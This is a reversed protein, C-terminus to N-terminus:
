FLEATFGASQKIKYEDNVMCYQFSFDREFSEPPALFLCTALGDAVAASQAQVWTAIVGETPKSTRPDIVHHNNGWARRNIASGCVAGKDLTLVGIVKSPDGPHELGVNIPHGKGYYAIDGSGNVLFRTLSRQELLSKLIDVFYGKGLAGFDFLVPESVSIHQEDIITVVTELNPTPRVVPQQRLSYDADYGLDSITNGILPTFAGGSLKHLRFYMQLMNTFDVPVELVGKQSSMQWVLSSKIFRSYTRDFSHSRSLAEACIDSWASDSISDWVTIQWSTGMSEYSYIRPDM